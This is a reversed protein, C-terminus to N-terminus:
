VSEPSKAGIACVRRLCDEASDVDFDASQGRAAFAAAFRRASDGDLAPVGCAAEAMENFDGNCHLAIDSGARIVAEVRARIPGKLARMSLDDSMLLGDFGIDGRIVDGTVIASTSAPAAADIGTFVVHATMAAPLHALSRFPVFDTAALESRSTTVVPLDFHSDKTARGHGPIHKIVPLAGGALLGEAVAQGLVTVQPPTHGYARDGIIGHSGAVPVDLVPACVTNIGLAALDRAVLRSVERAARRANEPEDRYLVGFSAAPPLLRGLPPRLRQVRGGEQDILVLLDDAGCAAKADAVLGRIQDHARCNRSFLIVGCPRVDRLFAAEGPTLVEGSLGAILRARM